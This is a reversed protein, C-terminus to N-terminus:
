TYSTIMQFCDCINTYTRTIFIYNRSTSIRHNKDIVRTQKNVPNFIIFIIPIRRNIIKQSINYEIGFFLHQLILFLFFLISLNNATQLSFQLKNRLFRLFLILLFYLLQFKLFISYNLVEM